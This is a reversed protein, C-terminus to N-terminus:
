KKSRCANDLLIGTAIAANLSEAGGIKPITIRHNVFRAVEASIGNSENGIVIAGKEGFSVEHVDKGDMFAGFVPLSHASLFDPLDTYFVNIRCFSGMTAGITKPNYFDATEESVFINKIGYWDATRIITGLNGPDRIDDLILYFENKLAPLTNAKMKAVAIAADNTQFSGLQELEKESASVAEINRSQIRNGNQELFKESAAVWTVVFDSNLLESVSKAGEVVFSQEQKRYKKVQLSKIFKFKSKSVM